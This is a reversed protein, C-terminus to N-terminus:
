IFKLFRTNLLKHYFIQLNKQYIEKMLAQSDLKFYDTLNLERALFTLEAFAGADQTKTIFKEKNEVSIKINGDEGKISSWDNEKSLQVLDKKLSEQKTKLIGLEQNQKIYETALEFAKEEKSKDSKEDSALKLRHKKAPCIEQYNCYSCLPSERAPFNDMKESQITEVIQNRMEMKILDLQEPNLKTRVVEDLRLFYQVLEINEFQPYNDMVALQYLGMQNIFAADTPKPLNKSTKYDCIEITGDERKTLRDIITTIKFAGNELRFNLKLETGLLTGQNFPQYKQYFRGLMERGLRIYDDITLYDGVLTITKINFKDWDSQFMAQADEISILVGDSGHKYLKELVSHIFKGNLTQPTILKSVQPKEIKEFKFRQPCNRYSSISSHSYSNLM